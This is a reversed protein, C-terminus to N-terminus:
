FTIEVSEPETQQEGTQQGKEDWRSPCFWPGGLEGVGNGLAFRDRDNLENLKRACSRRWLWSEVDQAYEFTMQLRPLLLDIKRFIFIRAPWTALENSKEVFLPLPSEGGRRQVSFIDIRVQEDDVPEGVFVCV